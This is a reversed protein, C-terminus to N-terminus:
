KRITAPWNVIVTVPQSRAEVQEMLLFKSGGDFPAYQDATVSVAIRTQFLTQPAGTDLPTGLKVPVAMLAGDLSLYYLEKGDKRWMGQVGGNNSVQRKDQFAPYSAIYVEWRGSEDSCYSIWREDPSLHPADKSYTTKFLEEPKPNEFPTRYFIRGGRNMFLLFGDRSWVAPFLNDKSGLLPHSDSSGVTKRLLEMEGDPRQSNFVIERGDPSWALSDDAAQGSTLRSLIGSSLDLQWLTSISSSSPDRMLVALRRGDPSAEFQRYPGQNGVTGLGKGSRDYWAFQNGFAARSLFALVGNESASFSANLQYGTPAGVEAIPFPEGNVSEKRLDFAQGFITNGRSFVLFGPEVYAPAWGANAIRKTQKSGLTGLYIGEIGTDTRSVFLFHRRDPLFRPATQDREKRAADLEFLPRPEGGAAPVASLPKLFQALLLEGDRDWAGSMFNQTEAVTVPPGGALDVKRVKNDPTLFAVFRSDGSWFPIRAGETGPVRRVDLTDLARIWLNRKSGPEEGAIAVYRGNPSVVPNDFPTFSLSKPLNAEFRIPVTEPAKERFHVFALPAAGALVGVLLLAAAIARPVGVKGPASTSAPAPPEEMLLRAEGIAQLRKKRDRTLCREILRRLWVPTEKPLLSYDVDARLVAALTDSVTDGSFARKGTLMEYLVAGFSWIDARRDAVAGRAQEPSMYAATGLIVGAQTAGITLTPSAGPDGTATTQEAIKALGFDLVKVIGGPTVKVNAPKLDRHVVGLEHAYELAEAIQRAIALAEELPIAGAAIRQELTPGEVLEMVLANQEIGYIAAINPHNLAALVQAERQFRARREADSSFSSPLTKLAVDRGLTTDHARYVEGMGGAGLPGVVQYSGLKAGISLSM